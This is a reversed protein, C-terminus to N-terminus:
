CCWDARVPFHFLANVREYGFLDLNNILALAGLAGAAVALAVVRQRRARPM